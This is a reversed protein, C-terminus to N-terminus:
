VIIDLYYSYVTYFLIQSIFTSLLSLITLLLSVISLIPTYPITSRIISTYIIIYIIVLISPTTSNLILYYYLTSQLTLYIIIYLYYEIYTLYRIYILYYLIYYLIPILYLPLVVTSLYYVLISINTCQLITYYLTLYTSGHLPYYQSYPLYLLISCYPYRM